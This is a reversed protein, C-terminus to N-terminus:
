FFEKLNIRFNLLDIIKNFDFCNSNYLQIMLIFIYVPLIEFFSEYIFNNKYSIVPKILKFAFGERFKEKLFYREVNIIGCKGYKTIFHFLIFVYFILANSKLFCDNIFISSMMLLGFVLHIMKILYDM